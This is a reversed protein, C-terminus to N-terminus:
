KATVIAKGLNEGKFLGFFASPMNYFGKTIHENYKLKGEVVWQLLQELGENYRNLFRNVIFGEMRLQKFILPLHVYEGKRPVEENYLSIAGCVAIRGLARMQQLAVDSFYGGVNEFFCDYGEPSAKKLAEELSSVTKYNFVEDFGIKKLFEVKDDSGACGVVKCGIIKGIQGVVSGVAGAAGNVLLIEGKKAFLIEKLGFYATLGPMGITGLALSKPIHSPWNPLLPTLNTGQSISHTTWGAQSLVYSGVPFASNNSELVRAVQEGIMIDGEKMVQKSFPVMYPDVSFYEAGLLVEGNKIKPLETEILKFNSLQPVGQFHKELTWSHSLVM